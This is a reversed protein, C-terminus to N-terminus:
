NTTIKLINTTNNNVLFRNDQRENIIWIIENKASCLLWTQEKKLISFKKDKFYKSVKKRGQMGKPCIYDGKQWKRVILPYKLLDKDIFITSSNKEVSTTKSVVEFKLTIPKDILKLTSPLEFIENQKVTNEISSLLLFDRNKLLRHSKSFVQKGSQASLLNCVDNWETFGYEKLLQYLYAKPNSLKKIKEIDLQMCDDKKVIIEKSVKSIRDTIIQQSEQLFKSTKGFSDLLNPNIEKLKPVIEHRIKNRLYKTELNSTDERWEINNKTAYEIIEERSFILLPRIINGNQQPIGTLGELGTGRTLNILFTELNDNAHHATLVYDFQHKEILEQFWDYRLKRASLQISLKHQTSYQQTDFRTIFTELNNKKGLKEIFLEDLNSERERLQFNCHALSVKIEHLTVCLHTLVVSDVGGSIAILLKKGYFFPFQKNIHEQFKQLM